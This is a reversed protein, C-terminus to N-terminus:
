NQMVMNCRGRMLIGFVLKVVNFLYLCVEVINWLRQVGILDVMDHALLSCHTQYTENTGLNLVFCIGDWQAGGCDRLVRM